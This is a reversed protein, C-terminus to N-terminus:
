TLTRVVQKASRELVAASVSLRAEGVAARRAPAAPKAPVTRLNSGAYKTGCCPCDGVLDQTTVYAYEAGCGRCARIQLKTPGQRYERVLIWCENIDVVSRDTFGAISRMEMYMMYARTFAGLDIKRQAEEGEFRRYLAMFTSAEIVRQRTSMIGEPEPLLGSRPSEGGHVEKFLARLRAPKLKTTHVLFGTRLKMAILPLVDQIMAHLELLNTEATHVGAASSKSM